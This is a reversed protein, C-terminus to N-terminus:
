LAENFIREFNSPEFIFMEEPEVFSIAREGIEVLM